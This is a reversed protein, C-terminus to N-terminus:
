IEEVDDPQYKAEKALEMWELLEKRTMKNLRRDIATLLVLWSDKLFDQMFQEDSQCTERIKARLKESTWVWTRTM